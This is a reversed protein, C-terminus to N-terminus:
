DPKGCAALFGYYWGAIERVSSLSISQPPLRLAVGSQLVSQLISRAVGDSLATAAASQRRLGFDTTAALPQTLNYDPGCTTVLPRAAAGAILM